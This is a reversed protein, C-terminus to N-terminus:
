RRAPKTDDNTGPSEDPVVADMAPERIVVATAPQRRLRSDRASSLWGVASFVDRMEPTIRGQKLEKRWVEVKKPLQHEVALDLLAAFDGDIYVYDAYDAM